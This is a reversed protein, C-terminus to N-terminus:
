EYLINELDDIVIELQRIVEARAENSMDIKDLETLSLKYDAIKEELPNCIALFNDKKKRCEVDEKYEYPVDIAWNEDHLIICRQFPTCARMEYETSNCKECAVNENTCKGDISYKCKKIYLM